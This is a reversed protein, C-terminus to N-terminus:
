RGFRAKLEHLDEVPVPGKNDKEEERVWDYFKNALGLIQEATPTKLIQNCTVALRLCELRDKERQIM